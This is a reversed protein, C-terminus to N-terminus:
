SKSLAEELFRVSKMRENELVADVASWDPESLFFEGDDEPDIGHVLRMDLGFMNLLSELRVMGRRTNGVAVFPKHFLIALVCGHFSDTVVCRADMIGALWDEVPPAVRKEVPVQTDLLEVAECGAVRSMFDIVSLKEPTRDLIYAAIKGECPHASANDALAIYDNVDLLMVPDLVHVARDCDLWEECMTVASDERVSVADFRELLETCRQVEEYEYELNDTGFSAAYSMRVVDWDKTFALFADEIKGFYLPRWVQDSGVIYADYEGESIENYWGLLRPDVYRDTFRQVHQAFVPYSKRYRRERFVESLPKGQLLRKMYIFPAKWVPPLPMKVKRDLVTVEHGMSELSRKLAYAQLLGGYNVHLPLTVIAVRM